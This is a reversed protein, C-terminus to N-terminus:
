HDASGDTRPSAPSSTLSRAITQRVLNRGKIGGMGVMADVGRADRPTNPHVTADIGRPGTNMSQLQGARAAAAERSSAYPRMLVLKSWDRAIM